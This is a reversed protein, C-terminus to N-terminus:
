QLQANNFIESLVASILGSHRDLKEELAKDDFKIGMDRLLSIEKEWRSPVSETEQPVAKESEPTTEPRQFYPGVKVFDDEEATNEEEKTGADAKEVPEDEKLPTSEEESKSTPKTQVTQVKEV